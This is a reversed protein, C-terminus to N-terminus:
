KSQVNDSTQGNNEARLSHQINIYIYIYITYLWINKKCWEWGLTGGGVLGFVLCSQIDVLNDRNKKLLLRGLLLETNGRWLRVSLQQVFNAFEQSFSIGNFTTAKLFHNTSDEFKSTEM